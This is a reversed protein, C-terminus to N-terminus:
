PLPDVDVVKGASLNPLGFQVVNVTTSVERKEVFMGNIKALSQTADLQTEERKAFHMLNSLKGLIADPSTIEALLSRLALKVNPNTLSKHAEVRATLDNTYGYADRMAQTGNGGNRIFEHVFKTQKPSLRYPLLGAKGKPEKLAVVKSM